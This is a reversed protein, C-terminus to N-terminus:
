TINRFDVVYLMFSRLVFQTKAQSDGAEHYSIAWM